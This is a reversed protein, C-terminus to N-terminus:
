PHPPVFVDIDWVWFADKYFSCPVYFWTALLNHLGSSTFIFKNLILISLKTWYINISHMSQSLQIQHPLLHIIGVCFVLPYNESAVKEYDLNKFNHQGTHNWFKHNKGSLMGDKLFVKGHKSWCYMYYFQFSVSILMARSVFIWSTNRIKGGSVFPCISHSDM